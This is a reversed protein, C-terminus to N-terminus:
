INKNLNALDLAEAIKDNIMKLLIDNEMATHYVIRKQLDNCMDMMRELNTPQNLVPSYNISTSVPVFVPDNGLGDFNFKITDFNYFSNLTPVTFGQQAIRDRKVDDKRKDTPFSIINDDTNDNM